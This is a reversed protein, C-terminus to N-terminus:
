GLLCRAWDGRGRLLRRCGIEGEHSGFHPEYAEEVHCPHLGMMPIMRQPDSAVLAMMAPISEMDINPLFFKHVDQEMARRIVEPRDDDFQRAYLHTHSDVLM